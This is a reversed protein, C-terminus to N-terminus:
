DKTNSRFPIGAGMFTDAVLLVGAEPDTERDRPAPEFAGTKAASLVASAWAGAGATDAFATAETSAMRASCDSGSTIVPRAFATFRASVIRSRRSCIRIPSRSAPHRLRNERPEDPQHLLAGFPELVGALPPRPPCRGEPAPQAQWALGLSRFCKEEFCATPEGGCFRSWARM